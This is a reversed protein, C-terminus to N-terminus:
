GGNGGSRARRLEAVEKELAVLRASLDAIQSAIREDALRISRRTSDVFRLRWGGPGEAEAVRGGSWLRDGVGLLQMLAFGAVAGALFARFLSDGGVLRQVFFGAGVAAATM